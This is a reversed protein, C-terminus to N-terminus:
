ANLANLVRAKLNDEATRRAVWANKAANAKSVLVALQEPGSGESIPFRISPHEYTENLYADTFQISMSGVKQTVKDGDLKLEKIQWAM